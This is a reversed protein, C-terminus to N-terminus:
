GYIFQVREVEGDCGRVLFASGKALEEEVFRHISIARRIVESTKLGQQEAIREVAEAAEDALSVTIKTKM